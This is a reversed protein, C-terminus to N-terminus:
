PSLRSLRAQIDAPKLSRLPRQLLRQYLRRAEIRNGSAELCLAKGYLALEFDPDLALAREFQGLAHRLDRTALLVMGKAATLPTYGPDIRLGEDMLQLSRQLDGDEFKVIAVEMLSRLYWFDARSQRPPSLAARLPWPNVITQDMRTYPGPRADPHRAIWPPRNWLPSNSQPANLGGKSGEVGALWLHGLLQSYLQDRRDYDPDSSRAVIYFAQYHIIVGPLNLMMGAFVLAWAIRHGRLTDVAAGSLLLLPPLIPALLRPGWCNGGEFGYWSAILAFYTVSSAMLALAFWRHRTGALRWGGWLCLATLPAFWLMGKELSFTLAFAATAKSASFAEQRYGFERPSGFLLTNTLLLYGSAVVTPAALLSGRFIIQRLPIRGYWAALAAAIFIPAFLGLSAKTLVAFALAFGGALAYRHWSTEDDVSALLGYAACAICLMQFPEGFNIGAYPWAFSGLCFAIVLLRATSPKQNLRLSSSWILVATLLLSIISPLCLIIEAALSGLIRAVPGALLVFAALILPYGPPYKSYVDGSAAVMGFAVRSSTASAFRTPAILKGTKVFSMASALMVQDDTTSIPETGFSILYLCLVVILLKLLRRSEV